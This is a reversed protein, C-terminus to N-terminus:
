EGVVVLTVVPQEVALGNAIEEKVQCFRMDYRTWGFFRARFVQFLQHPLCIRFQFALPQAVQLLVLKMQRRMRLAQNLGTSGPWIKVIFVGHDRNIDIPMIMIIRFSALTIGRICHAQFIPTVNHNTKSVLLIPCAFNGLIRINKPPLLFPLAGRPPTAPKTLPPTPNIPPQSGQPRGRPPTAPTEM